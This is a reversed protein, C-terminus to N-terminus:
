GDYTNVGIVLDTLGDRRNVDAAAFATLQGSLEITEAVGFSGHGDGPLFQLSTGGRSGAVIDWHGDADFDGAGFFDPPTFVKIALAPSLFPASTFAGDRKRKQAEPANPYISDVNGRHITVIGGGQHAYGSALDPVGDEDFDASALSRPKAENQELARQLEASGKYASLLERGDGLSLRADGCGAARVSIHDSLRAAPFSKKNNIRGGSALTYDFPLFVAVILSLALLFLLGTIYLRASRRRLPPLIKTGGRDKLASVLRYRRYCRPLKDVHAM